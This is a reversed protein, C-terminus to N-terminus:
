GSRPHRIDKGEGPGFFLYIFLYIVCVYVCVDMCVDELIMHNLSRVGRM